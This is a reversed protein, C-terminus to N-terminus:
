VDDSTWKANLTTHLHSTVSLSYCFILKFYVNELVQIYSTFFFFPFGNLSLLNKHEPFKMICGDGNLVKRFDQQPSFRM